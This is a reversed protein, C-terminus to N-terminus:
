RTLEFESSILRAPEIDLELRYKPLLVYAFASVLSSGTTFDPVYIFM